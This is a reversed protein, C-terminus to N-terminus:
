SPNRAITSLVRVVFRVLRGFRSVLEDDKTSPTINTLETLPEVMLSAAGVVATLMALGAIVQARIPYQQSLELMFLLIQTLLNQAPQDM